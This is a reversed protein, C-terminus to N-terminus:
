HVQPARNSYLSANPDSTEITVVYSEDGSKVTVSDFTIGDRTLSSKTFIEISKETTIGEYYEKYPTPVSDETPYVLDVDNELEYTVSDQAQVEKWSPQLHGIAAISLALGVKLILSHHM